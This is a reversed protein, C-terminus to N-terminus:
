RNRRGTQATRGVQYVRVSAVDDRALAAFAAQDIARRGAADDRDARDVASSGDTRTILLELSTM